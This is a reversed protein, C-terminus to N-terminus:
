IVIVFFPKLMFMTVSLFYPYQIIIFPDIYLSFIVIKFMYICVGSLLAQFYVLLYYKKTILFAASLEVTVALTRLIVSEIIFYDLLLDVLFCFGQIASCVM